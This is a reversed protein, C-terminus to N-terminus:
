NSFYEVISETVVKTFRNQEYPDILWQFESPNSVFGTEILISPTWTGRVVYFNMVKAGRDKRGLESAINKRILEAFPKAVSDKYYITFGSVKTLDTTDELSDSHISIYLDALQAKSFKLRDNLSFYIDETRTLTVKAGLAELQSKLLVTYNSVITKEPMNVGLLGLAGSDKGGHGPDIMIHAGTLPLSVNKEDIQFKQKLVLKIGGNIDELYYGGLIAPNKLTIEYQINNSNQIMRVGSSLNVTSLNLAKGGSTQSFSVVLKRGDYSVTAVAKQDMYFYMEEINNKKTHATKKVTNYKLSGEKMTINEKKIWLGSSLRVFDGNIGTIYDVMGKHLIFHAGNSTTSSEYTDSADNIITAFYPANDGIIKVSEKSSQSYAIGKYTMKYIPKGLDIIKPSQMVVSLSTKFTYTTAYPSSSTTSKVSPVMTYTKGNLTVTLTAGIPAKCSFVIEENNRIMREVQPWTSTPIIEVKSMPGALAPAKKTIKRVATKGNQTFTFTNVGDKLTVYTGFYGQSTRDKVEVGNLYLPFRSDSAGGLYYSKATTTVDNLPRGIVLKDQILNQTGSQYYTTMLSRLDYNDKFFAYRFFISGKIQDYNENLTLQRYIENVGYWPSKPDTDGVRYAAHGIYLNVDTDKAVNVWWSVLKSYDAVSYGIQWYLQPAIYDLMHNQIWKKTDAYQSFYSENGNTPSGEKHNKDNAWIGFPSIGFQISPDKDKITQYVTSVLTDVNNRRWDGINKFGAGYKAYSKSDDFDTGPYFYDDFHIGDVDYLDIIEKVSAVLHDRVEPLGPDYYMNGDKYKVVWEPHLVAPHTSALKSFDHTLEGSSKRTVRYPNLWAHLAMGRSHAEDIWFKLPDFDSDPAVGQKGTLYKSWPNISSKYIADAAPRVQLVIANMGMAKADDLIQIAEAKMRDSSLGTSSPYDLNLVTTVWIARFDQNIKDKQSDTLSAAYSQQIFTSLILTIALLQITITKKFKQVIDEMEIM